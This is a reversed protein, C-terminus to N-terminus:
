ANILNKLLVKLEYVTKVIYSCNCNYLESQTGTGWLVGIADIDNNLAAVADTAMDGIGIFRKGKYKNILYKFLETKTKKVEVSNKMFTYPTVVDAFYNKWRLRDLIRNTALDPKNTVIHHIYNKDLLIEELGGFSVTKYFGCNDYNKRFNEIIKQKRELTLVISSFSNELIKDITPGVRFPACQDEESLGVDSVSKKLAELVEEESNILTGDLDWLLHVKLSM